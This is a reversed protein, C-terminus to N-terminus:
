KSTTSKIRMQNPRIFSGNQLVTFKHGHKYLIVEMLVPHAFLFFTAHIKDSYLPWIEKIIHYYKLM